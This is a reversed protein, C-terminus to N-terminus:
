QYILRRIEYLDDDRSTDEEDTEIDEDPSYFFDPELEFDLM